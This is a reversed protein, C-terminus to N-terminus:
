QAIHENRIVVPRNKPGPEIREVNVHRVAEGGSGPIPHTEVRLNLKVGPESPSTITINVEQNPGLPNSTVKMGSNLVTNLIDNLRIADALEPDASCAGNRVADIDSQTHRSLVEDVYPTPPEINPNEPVPVMARESEANPDIDGNENKLSNPVGEGDTDTDVQAILTQQPQGQQQGQNTQQQQQSQPNHSACGPQNWSCWGIDRMIYEQAWTLHGQGVTTPATQAGAQAPTPPSSEPLTAFDPAESDSSMGGGGNDGGIVSSFLGYVDVNSLPNNDAYVYKNGTGRVPDPSIWRGQANHEQRAPFDYEDSVLQDPKGTFSDVNYPAGKLAYREGFPAFAVSESFVRDGPKSEARVSGQWDPFRLRTLGPATYLAQVGGPLNVNATVLTQGTMRAMVGFASVYEHITGNINEEIKNGLADYTISANTQDTGQPSPAITAIHGDALWTYSHFTDNTLNGDQDYSTNALTYHNTATDYGPAWAVGPGSTSKTLNGFSDSGYSFTQNWVNTSGNTCKVGPTGDLGSSIRMFDDYLYKCDQTNASNYGDVINNEALTGNANWSLSGSITVAPSGVAATYNKMRGTNPDYTFSQTDGLGLTVSMLAGVPQNPFSGNNYSVGTVPNTGSSATVTQVRGEGDLTGFTLTPLGVGSATEIQGDDWRTAKLHYYGGSNPSSQYYDSMQGRADYGFGEDTLKSPCPPPNSGACTYVEAMHGEANTMAVGNVTAADYVFYKSVNSSNPGAYTTYIERHLLDYYHCITNLSPDIEQVLDGNSSSSCNSGRISDYYYYKPQSWWEPNSESQIRGLKDYIYTRTQQPSAVQANETVQLVRGLPDYTYTTLFGTGGNVQGCPGSGSASSIVCVSKLRGLGDYEKQVSKSHENNPAPMLTILVDNAYYTRTTVDGGTGTHVLPRNLADYTQSETSAPCGLSRSSVCPLSTQYPRGDSDFSRSKTDWNAGGPTQVLQSVASRGINDTTALADITSQGGNFTFISETSFGNALVQYAFSTTNGLEDTKQVPRYFPDSTNNVVFATQTTQHNADQASTVVGGYCDWTQSTQLNPFDKPYSSTVFMNNCSTTTYVTQEGNVDTSTQVVGHSDYTYQKSLYTGGSGSGSVLNWTQLLNGNSDYSNWTQSIVANNHQSDLITVSCPKDIIYTSIATCSQSSPSGTGYVIQKEYIPTTAGFDYAKVDAVRGFSDYATKVASYGSVGPYTTYVDKETVNVPAYGACNTPGSSTNNYCTIVTELLNASSISGNYVQREAEVTVDKNGVPGNCTGVNFTYVTHNGQPDQVTTTTVENTGCPPVTSPVVHTYIWTGDPTTRTVTAPSGDICNIGNTGGSYSYNITGGTPLKISAIRGTYEGSNLPSTEWTFNMSSGDPFSISTPFPYNSIPSTDATCGFATYLTYQTNTVSVSQNHGVADTWSMTGGNITLAVQGLTDVTQSITNGNPDSISGSNGFSTEVDGSIDHLTYAFSGSTLDVYLYLGSNDSAYGGIKDAINCANLLTGVTFGFPHSTGNADKIYFGTYTSGQLEHNSNYCNSSQSFHVQQAVHAEGGTLWPAVVFGPGNQYQHVSIQSAGTLRYSYPIHGAKSRIPVNLQVGLTGLSISDYEHPEVTSFQPIAQGFLTPSAVFMFLGIIIGTAAVRLELRHM